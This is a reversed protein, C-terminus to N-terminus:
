GRQEVHYTSKWLQWVQIGNCVNEEEKVDKHSLSTKSLGKKRGWMTSFHICRELDLLLFCTFLFHKWWALVLLYYLSARAENGHKHAERLHVFILHGQRPSLRPTIWVTIVLYLTWTTFSLPLVSKCEVYSLDQNICATYATLYQCSYLLFPQPLNEKLRRLHPRNWRKGKRRPFSVKILLFTKSM